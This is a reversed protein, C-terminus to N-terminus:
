GSEIVLGALSDEVPLRFTSAFEDDFNKSARMYLEGTDEDILLLSGEEAGTLRVAAEVVATLVDSHDLMATVTRGILTLAELEKLRRELAETASKTEDQAQVVAQLRRHRVLARGVAALLLEAEFPKTLYDVAGARMAEVALTESGESSILIVPPNAPEASLRRTLELGSLNPMQHDTIVVDPRIERALALASLGDGVTRVSYGAPLLVGQELFQRVDQSDDVVLILPKSM